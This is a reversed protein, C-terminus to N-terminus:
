HSLEFALRDILTHLQAEINFLRTFEEALARLKALDGIQDEAQASTTINKMQDAKACIALTNAALKEKADIYLNTKRSREEPNM